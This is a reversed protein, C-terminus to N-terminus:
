VGATGDLPKHIGDHVKYYAITSDPHIIAAVLTPWKERVRGGTEEDYHLINENIWAFTGAFLKTSVKEDSHLVLFPLEIPNPQIPTKPPLATLLPHHFATYITTNTFNQALINALTIIPFTSDVLHSEVLNLIGRWEESRDETRTM